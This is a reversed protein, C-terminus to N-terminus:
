GKKEKYSKLKRYLITRSIGLREAAKGIKGGCEDLVYKIYQKEVQQMVEKLTGKLSLLKFIKYSVTQSGDSEAGPRVYPLGEITSNIVMREIVNRLERVNGPWDYTLLSQ